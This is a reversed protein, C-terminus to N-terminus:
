FNVSTSLSISGSNNMSITKMGTSSCRRKIKNMVNICTIGNQTLIERLNKSQGMTEVIVVCPTKYWKGNYKFKKPEGGIKFIIM